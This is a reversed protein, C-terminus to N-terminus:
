HRGVVSVGFANLFRVAEPGTLKRMDLEEDLKEVLEGGLKAEIGAVEEDSFLPQSHPATYNNPLRAPPEGARQPQSFGGNGPRLTFEVEQSRWTM